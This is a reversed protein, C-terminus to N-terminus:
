QRYPRPESPPSYLVPSLVSIALGIGIFLFVTEKAVIDIIIRRERIVHKRVEEM